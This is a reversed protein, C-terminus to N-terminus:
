EPLGVKKLLAQFRPHSRADDDYAPNVKILPLGPSKEQYGKELSALGDEKEGLAFHVIALFAHDVYESSAKENLQALIKRAEGRRGSKALAYALGTREYTGGNSLAVAKEHEAIADNYMGKQAYCWGLVGHAAVFGANMEIVKRVQAIAEDYRRGYYLTQGLSTMIVASLPDLELARRQEAIAEDMRGIKRLLEGYWQHATAYNPVQGLAKQYERESGEFDWDFSEKVDGLTAYAEALTPDIDLAKQAAIRAKTYAEPPPAVQYTSFDKAIAQQFYDAAQKLSEKTRKNWQYRGQLYLQHAEPNETQHNELKKKDVETWQQHLKSSVDRAMESQLLVHDTKRRNYQTSWIVNETLTDVLELNWTLEDGRQVVRGLLIAQVSLEKGITKADSNRGKYRFVSSRAKVHLNSLQSLTRILTETTGDSLYEVDPNGGENVFPMVAVSHIARSSKLRYYLYGGALSGIVLLAALAIVTKRRNFAHSPSGHRDSTMPMSSDATLPLERTDALSLQDRPTSRELKRDFELDKKLNQLDLQMDKTTQYREDRDKRLAKAVIRELEAPVDRAYRAMPEPEKDSLISAMVENGNSGNFPRLGTVMEYILVGFSFIDTRSDVTDGRAQEPSMYVATGLVMGPETRIARKTPAETDVVDSAEPEALKALGFDLVKILGDRRLMINEPKIDRHIIGAGHAVVLANAIQAAVDLIQSLKIPALRIRHRLTEGDIFETAIFYVSEIQDIEHITIINPHNLASAAKAEQEFRRRRERDAVDDSTLIKLAVQRDLKTDRALYVEGMGGAGLKSIIRYHSLTTNDSLQQTTM